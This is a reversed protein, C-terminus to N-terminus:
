HWLCGQHAAHAADELGIIAFRLAGDSRWAHALGEDVMEADVSLGKPTYVYRLLRGYRDRNRADPLLRVESGVLERTREKGEQYCPQGVETTDIGYFRITEDQGDLEVHITDGDVVRLVRAAQMRAPDACFVTDVTVPGTPYPPACTRTTPTATAVSTPSSAVTATPVQTPPATASPTPDVHRTATVTLTKAPQATRTEGGASGGCAGLLVCCGLLVAAWAAVRCINM